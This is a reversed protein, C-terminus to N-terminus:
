SGQWAVCTWLAEGGAVFGKKESVMAMRSWIKGVRLGEAAPRSRVQLGFNYLM